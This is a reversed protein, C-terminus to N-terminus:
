SLLITNRWFFIRLLLQWIQSVYTVKKQTYRHETFVIFCFTM